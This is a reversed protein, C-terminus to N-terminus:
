DLRLLRRRGRRVLANAVAFDGAQSENLAVHDVTHQSIVDGVFLDDASQVFVTRPDGFAVDGVPFGAAAVFIPAGFLIAGEFDPQELVVETIVQAFSVRALEGLDAELDGGGM